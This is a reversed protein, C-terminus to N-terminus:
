LHQFQADRMSSFRYRLPLAQAKWGSPGPEIGARDWFKKTNQQLHLQSMPWCKRTNLPESPPSFNALSKFGQTSYEFCEKPYDGYDYYYGGCFIPKSELVGAQISDVQFPYAPPVNCTSTEDDLNLIETVNSSENDGYGGVIMLKGRIPCISADTLNLDSTWNGDKGCSIQVTTDSNLKCVGNCKSGQSRGSCSWSWHNLTKNANPHPCSIVKGCKDFDPAQDWQGNRNCRHKFRLNNEKCTIVCVTSPKAMRGNMLEPTCKIRANESEIKNRYVSCNKACVLSPLILFIALVLM